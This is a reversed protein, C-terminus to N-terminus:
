AARADSNKPRGRWFALMAEAGTPSVVEFVALRAATQDPTHAGDALLALASFAARSLHAGKAAVALAEASQDQLIRAATEVPLDLAHALLSALADRPTARAEGILATEDIAHRETRPAAQASRALIVGRLNEPADFFYESLFGPPAEQCDAIRAILVSRTERDILRMTKELLTEFPERMSAPYNAPWDLLLDCLEIALMRRKEPANQTALEVLRTLRERPDSM